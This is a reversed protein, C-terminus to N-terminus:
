RHAPPHVRCVPHERLGAELENWRQLHPSCTKKRRRHGSSRVCSSIKVQVKERSALDSNLLSRKNQQSGELWNWWLRASFWISLPYHLWPTLFYVILTLFLVVIEPSAKIAVQDVMPPIRVKRLAMQDLLKPGPDIPALSFIWSTFLGVRGSYFLPRWFLYSWPQYNVWHSRLRAVLLSKMEWLLLM